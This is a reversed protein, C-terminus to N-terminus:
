DAITAELAKPKDKIKGELYSIAANLIHISDVKDLEDGVLPLVSNHFGDGEISTFIAGLATVVGSLIGLGDDDGMEEVENIIQALGKLQIAFFDQM